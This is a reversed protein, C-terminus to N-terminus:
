RPNTSVCRVQARKNIVTSTKFQLNWNSNYIFMSSPGGEGLMYEGPPLEIGSDKAEQALYRWLSGDGAKWGNSGGCANKAESYTYQSNLNRYALYFEAFKYPIDGNPDKHTDVYFTYTATKSGDSGNPVTITCDGLGKPTVTYTNGNRSVAAVRTDSSTADGVNGVATATFTLTNTTNRYFDKDNGSTASLTPASFSTPTIVIDKTAGGAAKSTLRITAPKMIIDKNGAKQTIQFTQSGANLSPTYDFWNGGDGWSTVSATCGLESNVTINTTGSTAATISTGNATIADSKKTVTFKLQKTNVAYNAIIFSGAGTGSNTVTYTNSTNSTNGGTVNVGSQSYVYSGGTSNVTVKISSNSVTYLTINTGSGSNQAPSANSYSYVTPVTTAAANVNFSLNPAGEIKNVLTVVANNQNSRTDNSSVTISKSPGGTGSSPLTFWSSGGKWDVTYSKYGEASTLTFAATKNYPMLTLTTNNISMVGNKVTVPFTVPNKSDANYITLTGSGSTANPTLTYSQTTNTSVTNSPSITCGSGSYVAKSGGYCTASLVYNSTSNLKYLTLTNGSNLAGNAPTNGTPTASTRSVSPTGLTPTVTFTKGAGGTIKNTLTVTAPKIAINGLASKVKVVVTANGSNFSNTPLDFWASGGGWNTVDATFGEPSSTTISTQANPTVALSPNNSPNAVDAVPASVSITKTKSPDSNNALTFSGSTAGGALTVTYTNTTNNGGAGAITVGSPNIVKNGGISTATINLKSGTVRYLKMTAANATYTNQTPSSSGTVYATTPAALVPTVTFSVNTGGTIKNRLTVTATKIAINTLSSKVKVSFNTSGAGYSTTPLEFWAGGGGWNIDATTATYGEPSTCASTVTASATATLTVNKATMTTAPATISITKTKSPDSNNALTFSGSTAGTNLTVTYENTTNNNGGGAVTVNTTNLVKNGGFSSADFVVKSGTVQYLKMTTANATYANQTPSSSKKAATTPAALVPTVTFTKDEGGRIKNKLTVTATKIGINGITQKVRAAVNVSGKAFDGTPLEFWASGDGWGTVDATFGEPSSAASNQSTGPTVTLAAINAATITTAVAQVTVTHIKAPDSKNVVKFSGETADKQMTVLYTNETNYSNGGTVTVGKIDTVESGGIATATFSIKSNDVKYMKLTTATPTATLTNQTPDPTGSVKLTPVSYVPTVTVKLDGGNVIKNKLTIIAPRVQANTTTAVAKLTVVKDKGAEFDTAAIDFWQSGGTQGAPQWAIAAKDISFGEHSSAKFAVTQDKVATLAATADGTLDSRLVTVVYDTMKTKDTNNKAHLIVTAENKDVALAPKLTYNAENAINEAPSVTAGAGELALASGGLSTVAIQMQSSAAKEGPLQYLTITKKDAALADQVPVSAEKGKVATAPQMAPTMTFTYDKGGITNKLTITAKKAGSLKNEIPTFKIDQTTNLSSAASKLSLSDGATKTTAALAAQVAKTVVAGDCQLWEPSGAPYDMKVSVGDMSSTKVTASNDKKITIEVDDPTGAGGSTHKNDEGIATYSPSVPADLLTVTIDIGLKDSKQNNFSVTGRNNDVVVDRDNLELEYVTEAGGQSVKKVDLWAPKSKLVVDDPCNMKVQARSGTIRYVSAELLEPDFSNPNASTGNPAKPPQQTEVPKPIALADVYIINESGDTLSHLRITVRPYRGLTYDKKLSVTYTYNTTGNAGIATSPESIEMWDFQKGATGGAYIKSIGLASNATTSLTLNSGTVLSMTITKTPEDYKSDAKYAEPITVSIEGPKNDPTYDINGDDAWDAVQINADLHYADAKTIAITYRHNNAIDFWTANGDAAQQTFPVKYSVDKMETENVKYKGKLVIFAKDEKPSPYTYFAGTCLGKNADKGAFVHAPYTILQDPKAQPLDGYVRIPFLGSGRRGNGMSVTEITFRSEEAKNSIDFRAALRTLKFNVQERASNDFTTLDVPTTLAGAMALPTALTDTKTTATLLRTHWSTFAAEQPVGETAFKPNGDEGEAFTIPTFDAPKVVKNGAPDILTTDNAICYLKVFLGKKIKMLGTTEKGDAGSTNLQLETAGAPLKDNSNARYAFREQFTYPENEAKAGFVYVDLTSIANEAATAIPTEAKTAQQQEGAKTPAKQLVLQNKLTMMVERVEGTDTVTGGGGNDTREDKACGSLLLTGCLLLSSFKYFTKM